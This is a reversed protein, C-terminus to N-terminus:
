ERDENKVLAPVSTKLKLQGCSLMLVQRKSQCLQNEWGYIRFFVIVDESDLLNKWLAADQEEDADQGEEADKEEDADQGEFADQGALSSFLPLSLM